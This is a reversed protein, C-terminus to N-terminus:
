YVFLLRLYLFMGQLFILVYVSLAICVGRRGSVKVNPEDMGREDEGSSGADRRVRAGSSSVSSSRSTRSTTESRLLPTTDTYATPARSSADDGDLHSEPM